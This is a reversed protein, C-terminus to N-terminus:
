WGNSSTNNEVCGNYSQIKNHVAKLNSLCAYYMIIMFVHGSKM